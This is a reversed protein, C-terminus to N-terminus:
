TSRATYFNSDKIDLNLKKNSSNTRKSNMLDQYKINLAKSKKGSKHNEKMLPVMPDASQFNLTQQM